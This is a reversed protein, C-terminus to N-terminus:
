EIIENMFLVAGAFTAGAFIVASPWDGRLYTLIGAIAAVVLAVLLVVVTRLSLLKNQNQMRM